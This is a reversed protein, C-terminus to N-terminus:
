PSLRTRQWASENKTFEIRDHLRSPRGQWFEIRNATVKFGGWRPPCPVEKGEYDKALRAYANDLYERNPIVSSQRSAWAGVKSEFPRSKFYAESEKRSLREVGGNVHVQREMYPWFFLLAAKPNATLDEAKRSEYNTFFTFSVDDARFDKLLVIRSHPTGDSACTSLTMANSDTAGSDLAEKLWREFLGSPEAGADPELLVAKAYKRRLDALEPMM